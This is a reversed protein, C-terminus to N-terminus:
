KLSDNLAVWKNNIWGGVAVITAMVAVLLV